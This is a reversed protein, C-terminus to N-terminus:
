QYPPVAWWVFGQQGLGLGRAHVVVSRGDSYNYRVTNTQRTPYPANPSIYRPAAYVGVPEVVDCDYTSSPHGCHAQAAGSGIMLVAAAAALPRITQM